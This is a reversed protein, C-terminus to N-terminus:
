NNSKNEFVRIKMLPNTNRTKVFIIILPILFGLLSILFKFVEPANEKKLLQWLPNAIFFGAFAGLIPAIFCFIHLLRQLPSRHYDEEFKLNKLEQFIKNNIIKQNAKNERRM